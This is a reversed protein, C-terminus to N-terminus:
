NLFCIIERADTERLLESFETHRINGDILEMTSYLITDDVNDGYDWNVSGHGLRVIWLQSDNPVKRINKDVAEIVSERSTDGNVPIKPYSELINSIEDKTKRSKYFDLLADLGPEKGDYYLVDINEKPIGLEGTFLNYLKVLSIYFSPYNDSDESGGGMMLVYREPKSVTKPFSIGIDPFLSLYLATAGFERLFDRRTSRPM